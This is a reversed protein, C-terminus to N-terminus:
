LGTTPDQLAEDFADMNLAGHKGERTSTAIRKLLHGHDSREHHTRGTTPDVEPVYLYMSFDVGKEKWAEVERRYLYTAVTSRLVDLFSEPTDKRFPHPQYGNPVLHARVDRVAQEFTQRLHVQMVFIQLLTAPPVVDNPLQAIPQNNAVSVSM